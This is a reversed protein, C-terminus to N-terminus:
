VQGKRGSVFMCSMVHAAENFCYEIKRDKDGFLDDKKAMVETIEEKSVKEKGAFMQASLDYTMNFNVVYLKFPLPYKKVAKETKKKESATPSYVLMGKVSKEIKYSLYALKDGQKLYAMIGPAVEGVLEKGGNEYAGKDGCVVIDSIVDSNLSINKTFVPYATLAGPDFSLSCGKYGPNADVFRNKIDGLTVEDADLGTDSFDAPSLVCCTEGDAVTISADKDAFVKTDEDNATLKGDLVFICKLESAYFLEFSGMRFQPFKQKLEGYVLSIDGKSETGVQLSDIKFSRAKVTVPLDVMFGKPKVPTKNEEKKKEKKPSDKKPSAKGFFDDDLGFAELFSEMREIYGRRLAHSSGGKLNYARRKLTKKM